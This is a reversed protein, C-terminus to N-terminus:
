RERGREPTWVYFPEAMADKPERWGPDYPSVLEALRTSLRVYPEEERARYLAPTIDEHAEVLHFYLDHFRFLTRRTVGVKRPLEGTDSEAFAEAVATANRPEMRAVILTRHM